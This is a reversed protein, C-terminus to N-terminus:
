GGRRRANSNGRNRLRTRMCASNNSRSRAPACIGAYPTVEGECYETMYRFLTVLLGEAVDDARDRRPRTKNSKDPTPFNVIEPM